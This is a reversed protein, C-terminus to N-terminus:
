STIRSETIKITDIDEINYYRIYNIFKLCEPSPEWFNTTNIHKIINENLNSFSYQSLTYKPSYIYFLDPFRPHHDMTYFKDVNLEFLNPFSHIVIDYRATIIFDYNYKIDEILNVANEISYLQSIINSFNEKNIHINNYKKLLLDEIYSDFNFKRPEEIICKVPNYRSKIIDPTYKIINNNINNCWSSVNYTTQSESYWMHCFVDTNYKDIIFKKHSLYVDDKHIGRPQGYLILAVKM